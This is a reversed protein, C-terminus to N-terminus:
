GSFVANLRVIHFTHQLQLRIPYVFQLRPTIDLLVSYLLSTSLLVNDIYCRKLGAAEEGVM